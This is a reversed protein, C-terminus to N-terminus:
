YVHYATSSPATVLDRHGSESEFLRCPQHTPRKYILASSSLRNQQNQASRSFLIEEDSTWGPIMPMHAMPNRGPRYRIITNYRSQHYPETKYFLSRDSPKRNSRCQLGTRTQMYTAEHKNCQPRMM